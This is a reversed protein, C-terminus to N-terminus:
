AIILHPCLKNAMVDWLRLTGLTGSSPGVRELRSCLPSNTAAVVPRTRTGAEGEGHSTWCDARLGQGPDNRPARPFDLRPGGRRSELKGVSHFHQQGLCPSSSGHSLAMADQRQGSGGTRHTLNSQRESAVPAFHCPLLPGPHQARPCRQSPKQEADASCCCSTPRHDPGWLNLCCSQDQTPSSAPLTLQDAVGRM